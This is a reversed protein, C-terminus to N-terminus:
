LSIALIGASIMLAVLYYSTSLLYLKVPKGEWLVMGLQVPAIFGLWLWFGLWMGDSFTEATVYRVFHALVYSMIITAAFMFAYGRIPSAGAKKAKQMDKSTIGSLKMWINGFLLPSFWVGGIIFQIVAALLVPLFSVEVTPVGM